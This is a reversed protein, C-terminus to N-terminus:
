QTSQSSSPEEEQQSNEQETSSNNQGSTKVGEANDYAAQLAELFQGVSITVSSTLDAEDAYEYGNQISTQMGLVEEVQQGIMWEQLADVQQYWEKGIGSVGKMGYDDGLQRKTMVPQSLDTTLAGTDDYEVGPEAVDFVVDLIKGDKDFSAACVTIESQTVAPSSETAGRTGEMSIVMGVGTKGTTKATNKDNNTDTNPTTQQQTTTGSGSSSAPPM